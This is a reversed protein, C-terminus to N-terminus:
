LKHPRSKLAFLVSRLKGHAGPRAEQVAGRGEGAIVADAQVQGLVRIRRV